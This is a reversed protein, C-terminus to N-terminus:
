IKILNNVDNTNDEQLSLPLKLLDIIIKLCDIVFKRDKCIEIDFVDVCDCSECQIDQWELIDQWVATVVITPPFKHKNWVIIKNNIITYNNKKSLIKNYIINPVDTENIESIATGGLTLIKLTGEIYAPLFNKSKFVECGIILSGCQHSKSKEMSLCFTQRDQKSLKYNDSSILAVRANNFLTYLYEDSYISDDIVQKITARIVAIIEKIKM